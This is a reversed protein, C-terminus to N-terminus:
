ENPHIINQVSVAVQSRFLVRYVSFLIKRLLFIVRWTSILKTQKTILLNLQLRISVRKKVCLKNFRFPFSYSVALLCDSVLDLSYRPLYSEQLSTPAVDWLVSNCHLYSQFTWMWHTRLLKISLVCDAWMYCVFMSMMLFLGEITNFILIKVCFGQIPKVMSSFKSLAHKSFDSLM